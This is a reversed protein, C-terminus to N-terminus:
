HQDRLWSVMTNIWNKMPDTLFSFTSVGSRLTISRDSTDKEIFYFDAAPSQSLVYEINAVFASKLDM